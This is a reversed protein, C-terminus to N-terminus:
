WRATQDRLEGVVVLALRRGCGQQRGPLEVRGSVAPDHARGVVRDLADGLRLVGLVRRGLLEGDLLDVDTGIREIRAFQEVREVGDLFRAALPVQGVDERKQALAALLDGRVRRAVHRARHADVCAGVERAHLLERLAPHDVRERRAAHRELGRLRCRDVGTHPDVRVRRDRVAHRELARRGDARAGRDPRLGRDHVRLDAVAHRDQVGVQRSGPRRCRSSRGM